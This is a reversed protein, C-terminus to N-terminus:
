QMLARLLILVILAEAKLMRVSSVATSVPQVVTTTTATTSTSTTSDSILSDIASFVKDVEAQGGSCGTASLLNHPCQVLLYTYGGTCYSGGEEYLAGMGYCKCATDQAGCVLLSPVTVAGIPETQPSGDDEPLPMAQRVFPVWSAAYRAIMSENLVPPRAFKTGVSAHYWWLAKQFDDSTAFTDRGMIMYLTMGSATRSASDRLAFQSAYNFMAQTEIDSNPGHLAVSWADNHPIALSSYSLVRNATRAAVYWGLGAGHDHGVLHFRPFNFADAIGLVDNILDSYAYEEPNLPLAGPSYGRLACAVARLAKNSQLWHNMLPLYFISWEPFGHLLIVGTGTEPGSVRCFFTLGNASVNQCPVDNTCLSQYPGYQQTRTEQLSVALFRIVLSWGRSMPIM